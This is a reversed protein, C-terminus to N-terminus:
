MCGNVEEPEMLFFLRSVLSLGSRIERGLLGSWMPMTLIIMGKGM